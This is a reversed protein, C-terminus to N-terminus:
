SGYLYSIRMLMLTFVAIGVVLLIAYHKRVPRHFAPYLTKLLVYAIAYRGIRVAIALIFFGVVSIEFYHFQSLFVKYPVGSFPQNFLAWVGMHEYWGQVATIMGPFIYPMALVTKTPLAIMLGLVTGLATGSLDYVLLERKRNIKMFILLLLLFEPIIFWFLAESLAWSFVLWNSFKSDFFREMFQNFHPRKELIQVRHHYYFAGVFPVSFLVMAGFVFIFNLLYTLVVAFMYGDRYRM